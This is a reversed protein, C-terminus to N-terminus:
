PMGTQADQGSGARLATANAAPPLTDLNEAKWRMAMRIRSAGSPHTYFFFEEFRSPEIKRYTSLKLASTAFGDPERATNLGFIDAETEAARVINNTVPTALLFFLSLAAMLAPLSAIDDLGRVGWRPGHRALVHRVGYHVFAFGVVFLLGYSMLHYTAHGLVYHGLEHGMVAKIEAPTGQNLLNDNLSIRITSGLGSVNASIRSTQRSADVVYVNDAPVGNARAMSLVAEKIPGEQLPTYINFLPMIFVPALFAFFAMFAIGGGAGLLWWRRPFKRLAAYLLILAPTFMVISVAQGVSFDRLWAWLTQNSLGYEHERVFGTYLAWPLTLVAALM